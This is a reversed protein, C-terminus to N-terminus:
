IKNFKKINRIFCIHFYYVQLVFRMLLCPVEDEDTLPHFQLPVRPKYKSLDTM